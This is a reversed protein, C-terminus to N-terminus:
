NKLDSLLSVVEPMFHEGDYFVTVYEFRWTPRKASNLRDVYFAKDPRISKGLIGSECVIYGYLHDNIWVVLEEIKEDEVQIFYSKRAGYQLFLSSDKQSNLDQEETIILGERQLIIKQLNTLTHKHGAVKIATVSETASLIQIIQCALTTKGVNQGAGAILIVKRIEKM